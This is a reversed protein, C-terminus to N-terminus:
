GLAFSAGIAANARALEEEGNVVTPLVAMVSPRFFQSVSSECFAIVYILWVQDATNVFLYCAVLGARVVDSLIMLRKRDVRDVFVGAIPSFLLQPVTLAVFMGGTAMASGTLQFIWFPLAVILVLDGAISVGQAGFLLLVNRNRLAQLM